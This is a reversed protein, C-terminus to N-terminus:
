PEIAGILSFGNDGLNGWSDGSSLALPAEASFGRSISLHGLAVGRGRWGRQEDMRGQAIITEASEQM